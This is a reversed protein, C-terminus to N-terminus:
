KENVGGIIPDDGLYEELTIGNDYIYKAVAEGVYRIHWPEYAVGTIREKGYPYRVIFGFRHCNEALWDAEKTGEMFYRDGNTIDISLGTQHESFGAKAVYADALEKGELKVRERYINKQLKYSRYGSNGLLTIGEQKAMNILEELPKVIEDAVHMEEYSIGDAFPIKPINLNEPKYDRELGYEKNVLILERNLVIVNNGNVLTSEENSNIKIEKVNMSDVELVKYRIVYWVGCIIMIFLLIKNLFKKM